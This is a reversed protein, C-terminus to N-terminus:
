TIYQISVARATVFRARQLEKRATM